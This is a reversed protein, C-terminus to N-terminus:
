HIRGADPGITSAEGHELPRLGPRGMPRLPTLTLLSQRLECARAECAARAMSRVTEPHGSGAGAPALCRALPPLAAAIAAGEASPERGPSGAPSAWSFPSARGSPTAGSSGSVLVTDMVRSRPVGFLPPALRIVLLGFADSPVSVKPFLCGAGAPCPSPRARSASACTARGSAHVRASSVGGRHHCRAEGVADLICIMVDAPDAPEPSAIRVDILETWSAAAAPTAVDLILVGVLVAETLRV